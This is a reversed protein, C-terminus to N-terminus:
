GRRKPQASAVLDDLRRRVDTSDYDTPDINQSGKKVAVSTNRAPPSGGSKAVSRASEDEFYDGV